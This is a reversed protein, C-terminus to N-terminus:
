GADWLFSYGQSKSKTDELFLIKLKGKLFTVCCFKGRVLMSTSYNELKATFRDQTGGPCPYNEVSELFPCLRTPLGLGLRAL